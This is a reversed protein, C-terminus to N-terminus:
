QYYKEGMTIAIAGLDGNNDIAKLIKVNRKMSKMEEKVALKLPTFLDDGEKSIGGGIIIAGPDLINIINVIGVALYYITEEVILQAFMDGNRKANFIAKADIDVPRMKSFVTSNRIASINEAVRGTIGRGGSIAEFCGRRGCGCLPGNPMIVMHGIEGAMGHSGKYLKNNMFIGGGIGTSLTIYIFNEFNKANGFVKEAMTAASADNELYVPVKFYEKLGDVINYNRLGIINPSSVIIGKKSNVPGAFIIGVRDIKDISNRKILEEGMVILQNTLAEKGYEKLTRKRLTDIIKGNSNGIVASIKTGGVDYGLIYM